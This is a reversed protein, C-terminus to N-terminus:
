EPKRAVVVLEETGEPDEDPFVESRVIEFGAARVEAELDGPLGIYRTAVGDRMCLRTAPDWQDPPLGKDGCMTFVVFTGGPKLVRRAEALVKPRDEGIICHLLHGDRVVDFTEDEWPLERVDGARVDATVGAERMRERAWEIATPSIDIGALEFDPALPVLHNAAGCGIELLRGSQPVQPWAMVERVISNAFEFSVNDDWGPYDERGRRDQYIREHLEYHTRIDM